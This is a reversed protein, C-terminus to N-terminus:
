WAGCMVCLAEDDGVRVFPEGAPIATGCDRCREDRKSEVLRM